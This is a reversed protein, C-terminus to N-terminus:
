DGTTNMRLFDHIDLDYKISDVDHVGLIFLVYSSVSSGRGVGWVTQEAELKNIIFIIARLIDYLGLKKYCALEYAIRKICQDIEPQLLGKATNRDFVEFVYEEVNLTKYVEPLRWDFNLPRIDTKIGLQQNKSVFRNYQKVEETIVDVYVNTINGHEFFKSLINSKVTIDGDYWLVRNKLETNLLPHKIHHM